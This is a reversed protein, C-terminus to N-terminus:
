ILTDGDSIILVVEFLHERKINTWSDFIATVRVSDKQVKDLITNNLEQSAKTLIHNSLVHCGPLKITP